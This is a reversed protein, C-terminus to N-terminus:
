SRRRVALFAGLVALVLAAVVWPHAELQEAFSSQGGAASLAMEIPATTMVRVVGPVDDDRREEAQSM